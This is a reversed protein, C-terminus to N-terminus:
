LFVPSASAAPRDGSGIGIGAKKKMQDNKYDTFIIVEDM